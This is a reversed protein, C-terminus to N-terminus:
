LWVTLVSSRQVVSSTQVPVHNWDWGWEDHVTQFKSDMM